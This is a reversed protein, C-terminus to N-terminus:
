AHSQERRRMVVGIAIAFSQQRAIFGILAVGEGVLICDWRHDSLCAHAFQLLGVCVKSGRALSPEFESARVVCLLFSSLLNSTKRTKGCRMKMEYRM